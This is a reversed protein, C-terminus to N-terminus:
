WTFARGGEADGDAARVEPVGPGGRDDVEVRVVGDGAVVTVTVTEGAVSLGGYRVSNGFLESVLLMAVDGCPHGSGLVAGAFERAVRARDGRGALTVSERVPAEAMQIRRGQGGLGRFVARSGRALAPFHVSAKVAFTL